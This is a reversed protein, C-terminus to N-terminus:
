YTRLEDVSAVGLRKCITELTRKQPQEVEGREIRGITKAPIGDFADQALGRQIRLRRISAGLSREEQARRQNLKRRHEPDNEYLIADAAAEYAGFALTHGYDAIHFANVRPRTGDGSPEFSSLPVVLGRLDGRVLAVVDNKKDVSGGIFRAAADKSALVEVLEPLPLMSTDEEKIVLRDFWSSLALRLASNPPPVLLVLGPATTPPRRESQFLGMLFRLDTAVVVDAKSGTSLAAIAADASRTRQVTTEDAAHRLSGRSGQPDFITLRNTV